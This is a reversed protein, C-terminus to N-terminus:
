TVEKSQCKAWLNAPPQDFNAKQELQYDGEGAPRAPLPRKASGISGLSM